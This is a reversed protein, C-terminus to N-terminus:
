LEDATDVPLRPGTALREVYKAIIDVELNVLDGPKRLAFVTNEWTYPVITVSFTRYDCNVVTLSTGDVAVFGKEVVYRMISDEAEFKFNRAQGEPVVSLVRGTGDVHGQVIHGGFRGDSSMPRELNVPDGSKLEGLNTRRLTEPVTDVSFAAGSIDTVTLCAGNVCISDSVVLDDMVVSAGISLGTTSTGAVTGIEEVIGTFM